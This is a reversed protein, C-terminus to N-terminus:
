RPVEPCASLDASVDSSSSCDFECWFTIVLAVRDSIKMASHRALEWRVNRAFGMVKSRHVLHRAATCLVADRILWITALSQSISTSALMVLNPCDAACFAAL